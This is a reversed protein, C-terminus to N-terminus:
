KPYKEFGVSLFDSDFTFIHKIDYKEMYMITSRDVFSLESKDHEIKKWVEDFQLSNFPHIIINSQLIKNVIDVAAMYNYNYLLYTYTEHLILDSSHILGFNLEGKKIKEIFSKADKHYSDNKENLAVWASTDIFISPYHKKAM